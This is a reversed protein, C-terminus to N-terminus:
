NCGCGAGGIGAGGSAQERSFYVHEMMATALPDRNADMLPDALYSREWPKVRVAQTSACGCLMACLAIPILLWPAPKVTKM